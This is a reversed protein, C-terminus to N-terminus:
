GGAIAVEIPRRVAGAGLSSGGLRLMQGRSLEASMNHLSRHLQKISADTGRAPRRLTFGFRRPMRNLIPHAKIM